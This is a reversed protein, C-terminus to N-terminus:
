ADSDGQDRLLRAVNWASIGDWYSPPKASYGRLLRGHRWEDYSIKTAIKKGYDKITPEYIRWESESWRPDEYEHLDQWLGPGSKRQVVYGAEWAEKAATQNANLPLEIKDLIVWNRADPMHNYSHKQASGDDGVYWCGEERMGIRQVIFGTPVGPINIEESM